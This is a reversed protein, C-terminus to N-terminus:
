QRLHKQRIFIKMTIFSYHLTKTLVTYLHEAMDNVQKVLSWDSDSFAAAYCRCSRRKEEMM